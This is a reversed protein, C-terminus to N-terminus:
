VTDGRPLLGRLVQASVREPWDDPIVAGEIYLSYYSGLLQSVALEIDADRSLEHREQAAVLVARILMRRPLVVDERYQALLDPMAHEEALLAGIMSLGYPRTIGAQFHRLQAAVDARTDGTPRPLPTQERAAAMAARALAAKNPYRLYITPRTVGAAQAVDDLSMRAYGVQGLLELTAALIRADTTQTRPRGRARTTHTM